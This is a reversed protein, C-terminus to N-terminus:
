RAVYEICNRFGEFMGEISSNKLLDERACRGMERRKEDDELLYIIKRKLEELNDEPVIFGNRGDILCQIEPPQGGEETVVPLGWFMAQNIGLGVHGPISFIDACRFIRSIWVNGPDHVEGPCITNAPNCKKLLTESLGSGVIVLGAHPVDIERFIDILHNVKKRGGAVDMRGVFLVVKEFPIGLIRKLEEKSETIEPFVNYNITNNAVFVKHQNRTSIYKKERASYLIIGDSMTHIYRFFGNKLRNGADDLNVGKNWYIVPIRMAKIWHILPWIMTDKLHLFLIIADPRIKRIEERYAFFSFPIEKFDFRPSCSNVKRIKNSRVSFDWGTEKFRDYFYNYVNVRYHLVENSILLVKRGM